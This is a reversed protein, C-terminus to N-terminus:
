LPKITDEPVKVLKLRVGYNENIYDNEYLWKLYCKLTRIRINTTCPKYQKEIVMYALYDKFTCYNLELDAIRNLTSRKDDELYSKLYRIHTRHEELTRPALGELAKDKMFKEHLMRFEEETITGKEVRVDQMTLKLSNNNNVKLKRNGM